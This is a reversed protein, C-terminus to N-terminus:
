AAGYDEYSFFDVDIGVAEFAKALSVCHSPDFAGVVCIPWSSLEKKLLGLPRAFEPVHTRLTKIQEITVPGRFRLRIPIASM